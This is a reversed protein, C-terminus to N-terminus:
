SGAVKRVVFRVADTGGPLFYQSNIKPTEKIFLRVFGKAPITVLCDRNSVYRQFPLDDGTDIMTYLKFTQVDTWTSGDSSTQVYVTFRTGAAHDTDTTMSLYM